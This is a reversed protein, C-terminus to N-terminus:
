APPGQEQYTPQPAVRPLNFWFSGLGLAAGLMLARTMLTREYDAGRLLLKSMAAPDESFAVQSAEMAMSAGLIWFALMTGVVMSIMATGATGVVRLVQGRRIAPTAFYTAALMAGAGLVVASLVPLGAWIAMIALGAAAWNAGAYVIFTQSRGM